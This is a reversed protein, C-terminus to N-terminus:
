SIKFYKSLKLLLICNEHADKIKDYIKDWDFNNEVAVSRAKAIIVTKDNRDLDTLNLIPKKHIAKM